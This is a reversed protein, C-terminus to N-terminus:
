AESRQARRARRRRVVQRRRLFLALLALAVAGIAIYILPSGGDDDGSPSTAATTPPEEPFVSRDVTDRAEACYGYATLEAPGFWGYGTAAWTGRRTFYGDAFLVDFSGGTDFGGAILARGRPCRPTAVTAVGQDEVSTTASVTEIPLSRDEACYAIATLEGGDADVAGASVTWGNGDARSETIYNGGYMIGGFGVVGPTTFNTRQFGGSFLQTGEPCRATVTGTGERRVFTTEHPSETPVLGQGCLVQITGRRTPSQETSPDIYTSTVHFGSQVGLREYSHPYLGEGDNAVPTENFWGGGVPHTGGPCHVDFRRTEDLDTMEFTEATATLGRLPGVGAAQSEESLGQDGLVYVPGFDSDLVFIRGKAGARIALVLKNCENEESVVNVLGFGQVSDFTPSIVVEIGMERRLVAAIEEPPPYCETDSGIRESAVIKFGEELQRTADDYGGQLLQGSAAPVALALGLLVLLFPPLRKM